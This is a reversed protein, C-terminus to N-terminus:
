VRSVARLRRRRFDTQAAQLAQRQRIDAMLGDIVESMPAVRDAMGLRVAQKAGVMRGEGFGAAVDSQRVGRGRAVATTFMDYFDDIREQVAARAAEGLPEFPNGETKYKGAAILNVKIGLKDLAGSIDEHMAFVGISGVEGSPSVVLEDAATAIWYAASAALTNAVATIPKKGRAQYIEEALEEIGGVQGGPSDIDLIISSIEPDNLAARFSKTLRQVSVAGSSEMFLNGRPILTGVVPLVAIASGGNMIQRNRAAEIEMAAKIEEPSLRQGEARLVILERIVALKAPLIAWPTECAAQIVRRYPTSSESDGESAPECTGDHEQCHDCAETETWSDKPYRYAQETMTEEGKLRGMIVDYKKGDSERSTRRFSGAQFDDPNRLRCAHENPYPM